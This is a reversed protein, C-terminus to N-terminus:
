TAPAGTEAIRKALRERYKLLLHLSVENHGQGYGFPNDVDRILRYLYWYTLSMFGTVVAATATSKFKCALLLLFLGAIFAEFLTYASGLFDTRAITYARSVAKRLANLDGYIRVTIGKLSPYAALVKVQDDLDKVAPFLAESKKDPSQFWGILTDTTSLVSRLVKSEVLKPLVDKEGFAHQQTICEKMWDEFIELQCAIEGPLREAEKFDTLTGGLVFGMIFVVATFIVNLDSNYEVFGWSGEGGLFADLALKVGALM